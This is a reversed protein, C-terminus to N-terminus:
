FCSRPLGKGGPRRADARNLPARPPNGGHLPGRPRDPRGLQGLLGRQFHSLRSGDRRPPPESSGGRGSGPLPDACRPDQGEGSGAAPGDDARAGPVRARGGRNHARGPAPADPRGPRQDLARSPLLHFDPAAPRRARRGGRGTAAARAPHGSRAPGRPLRAATATSRAIALRPSSGDRPARHDASAVAARGPSHM